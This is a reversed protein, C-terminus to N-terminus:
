SVSRPPRRECHSGTSPWWQGRGRRRSFSGTPTAVCRTCSWRGTTSRRRIAVSGRFRTRAASASNVSGETCINRVIRRPPLVLEDAEDHIVHADRAREHGVAERDHDVAHDPLVGVAGGEVQATRPAGHDSSQTDARVVPDEESRRHRDRKAPPSRRCPAAARSPHARRLDPGAAARAQSARAHGPCPLISGAETCTVPFGDCPYIPSCTPVARSGLAPM